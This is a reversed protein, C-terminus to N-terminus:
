RSGGDRTVAVAPGSPTPGVAEPRIMSRLRRYDTKGGGLLPLSEMRQVEDVRMVGRFGAEGLLVNADKLSIPVTTFLVITRGSDTQIGEVAVRPGNEDPPYKVSFPEELAPLSIMEGGAKLFRKLRGRFQIFGQDDIEVLDGTVYWRRGDREVFPSTEDGLYGPFVSPGAVLLMGMKGAPLSAGTELDVVSTQVNPLPLGVSGPRGADPRNAAIM